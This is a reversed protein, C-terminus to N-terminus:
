YRVRQHHIANQDLGSPCISKFERFTGKRQLTAAADTVARRNWHADEALEQLPNLLQRVKVMTAGLDLVDSSGQVHLSIFLDQMEPRYSKLTRALEHGGISVDAILIHIRKSQGIVLELAEANNRAPLVLYGRLTLNQVLAQLLADEAFVLVTPFADQEPLRRGKESSTATAAQERPRSSESSIRWSSSSRLSM